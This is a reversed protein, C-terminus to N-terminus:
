IDQNQTSFLIERASYWDEPEGSTSVLNVSNVRFDMKLSDGIEAALNERTKETVDGYMLSIHPEFPRVSSQGFVRRATEEARMLEETRMAKVFLCRSYEDRFDTGGLQIVFPKLDRGLISGKEALFEEGEMLGGLLTLHPEFVPSSYESGLRDIVEKLRKYVDKGPILWLAFKGIDKINAMGIKDAASESSIEEHMEPIDQNM